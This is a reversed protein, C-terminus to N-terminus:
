QSFVTTEGAPCDPGYGDAEIDMGRASFLEFRTLLRGQAVFFAEHRGNRVHFIDLAGVLAEFRQGDEARVVGYGNVASVRLARLFSSSSRWPHVRILV